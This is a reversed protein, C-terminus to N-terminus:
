GAAREFRGPALRAGYPGPDRGSVCAAVIEAVLPALLWGNRRAGVALVVNRETSWGVMPLGDPTAARVGASVTVARDAHGPFLALGKALMMEGQRRDVAPDSVGVEMTAGFALGDVGPAAYVGETRVVAGQAAGGLRVIHGKIPQLFNLEPALDHAAGTAVVRISSPPATELRGRRVVVGAAEAAVRLSHLAEAADVRWDDAVLLGRRFGPALGPALAALGRHDVDAVHGGFALVGSRLGDLWRARGVAVAGTRDLVIGTRAALAPWLDRAALMLGLHPRAVEDLLAEFLPAIMGAAVSSANADGPDWLTVTCGAEALALAATLGLVGAGAVIIPAPGNM